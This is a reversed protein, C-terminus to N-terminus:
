PLIRARGTWISLLMWIDPSLMLVYTENRVDAAMYATVREGRADVNNSKVGTLVPLTGAVIVGANAFGMWAPVNRLREEVNM